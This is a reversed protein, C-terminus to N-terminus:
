QGGFFVFFVFVLTGSRTCYDSALCFWVWLIPEDTCSALALAPALVARGRHMCRYYGTTLSLCCNLSYGCVLSRPPSPPTVSGIFDLLELPWICRRQCTVEAENGGKMWRDWLLVGGEGGGLAGCRRFGHCRVERAGHVARRGVMGPPAGRRDNRM